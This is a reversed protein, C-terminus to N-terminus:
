DKKGKRFIIIGLLIIIVVVAGFVAIVVWWSVAELNTVNKLVYPGEDEAGATYPIRTGRVLLRHSNVGYPTCTVLTVYDKRKEPKLASTDNPDVVLIRDVKYALTDNLVKIYFCDGKKVEDLDTLLEASPLGTHGSLVCHTGDGGIPFATQYLHGAGKQLVEEETGHYIPMKVGICPIDLEGMVGDGFDMIENYNDPLVVGSGPVFPDKINEGQIAENYEIAKQKEKQCQEEDLKEINKEMVQISEM